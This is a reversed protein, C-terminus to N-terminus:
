SMKARVDEFMFHYTRLISEAEEKSVVGKQKLRALYVSFPMGSSLNKELYFARHIAQYDGSIIHTRVVQDPKFIELLPVIRGNGLFMLRHAVVALLSGALKMRVHDGRAMLVRLAEGVTNAHMTSFVLHGRSAIDILADIEEGSRVEGIM